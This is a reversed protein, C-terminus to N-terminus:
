LSVERLSDQRQFAIEGIKDEAFAKADEIKFKSLDESEVTSRQTRESFSALALEGKNGAYLNSANQSDELIMTYNPLSGPDYRMPIEEGPCFANCPQCKGQCCRIGTSVCGSFFRCQSPTPEECCNPCAAQGISPTSTGNAAGQRDSDLIDQRFSGNSTSSSIGNDSASSSISSDSQFSPLYHMGLLAGGLGVMAGGLVTRAM